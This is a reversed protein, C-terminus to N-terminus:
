VCCITLARSVRLKLFSVTPLPYGSTLPWGLASTRRISRLHAAYSTSRSPAVCGNLISSVNLLLFLLYVFSRAIALPRRGHAHAHPWSLSQVSSPTTCASGCRLRVRMKRKLVRLARRWLTDLTRPCMHSNCRWRVRTRGRRPPPDLICPGCPVRRVLHRLADRHSGEGGCLITQTLVVLKRSFVVLAVKMGASAGKVQRM